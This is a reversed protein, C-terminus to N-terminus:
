DVWTGDAQTKATEAQKLRAKGAKTLKYMRTDFPRDNATIYRTVDNVIKESLRLKAGHGILELHTRAPLGRPTKKTPHVVTRFAHHANNEIWDLAEEVTKPTFQKM